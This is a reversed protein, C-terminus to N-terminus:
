APLIWEGGQEPEMEAVPEPEMEAVPEPEMEAVLSPSKSSVSLVEQQRSSDLGGEAVSEADSTYDENVSPDGSGQSSMFVSDGRIRVGAFRKCTQLGNRLVAIQKTFQEREARSEEPEGAIRAVLEQSMEYVTIPSLIDHLLSLLKTEIVEVAVDDIFRKLAVKYYANLCDLAEEAAFRSMNPENTAVLSDILSQLNWRVPEGSNWVQFAVNSLNRTADINFFERIVMATKKSNRERRVNQLTETFYHNYTIPHGKQHPAILETTKDAMEKRIRQMAPGSIEEKLGRSTTRDAISDIVLEIFRGAARWMKDIHRRAIDEWRQSQEHFLAAVILPNFTGPLERGRTRRIVEEIHNLFEDRTVQQPESLDSSTTGSKFDTIVRFHGTRGMESAFGENLNQVVARIRQKYGMDTMADEFFQDNYSGSTSATVLSQFAQSLHLLYRRQEDPSARSEGLHELQVQCNKCKQDIETMLSPLETAIQGLLLKSLRTRLMSIGVHSSPMERWSGKSFFETEAADRDDLSWTGKESDMNKLVHWGLHFKVQENKALSLYLAERDSGPILDDPKTIVGLTRSGTPDVKRALKLVVQNAFDNKASVVALIISRPEKMYGQVVEQILEVDSDTQQSTASHILGPLDVITLHPRDPGTIEVRLIDKAFAKGHTTIGMALKAEEILKPLGSFDSLQEQFGRLSAQESETRSESPVISVKVSVHPDRRLVLEIPFRTCLNGNVPLWIRSIAQLGSSKGSSQDGCVIIQPLSVYNNLGQLRLQDIADLLELQDQSCLKSLVDSEFAVM